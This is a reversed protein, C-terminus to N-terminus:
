CVHVEVYFPDPKCSEIGVNKYDRADSGAACEIDPCEAGALLRRKRGLFPNGNDNSWNYGSRARWTLWTNRAVLTWTDSLFLFMSSVCLASVKGTLEIVMSQLSDGNKHLLITAGGCNGVAGNIVAPCANPECPHVASGGAPIIRRGYDRSAATFQIDIPEGYNNQLKTTFLATIPRTLILAM